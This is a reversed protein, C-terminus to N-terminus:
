NISIYTKIKKAMNFIINVLIYSFIICIFSSGLTVLAINSMISRIFDKTIDFSTINNYDIFKIALRPIVENFTLYFTLYCTFMCRTFGEMSM